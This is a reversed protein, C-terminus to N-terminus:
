KNYANYFILDDEPKIETPKPTGDQFGLTLIYTALHSNPIKLIKSAKYVDFHSVICSSIGREGAALIMNQAAILTQHEKASLIDLVNPDIDNIEDKLKGLRYKELNIDEDSMRKTCLAILVPATGMGKHNHCCKILEHTLKKDDIVGLIWPRESEISGSFRGADIVYEMDEKLIPRDSYHIANGANKILDILM